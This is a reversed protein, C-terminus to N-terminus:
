EIGGKRAKDQEQPTPPVFGSVSDEDARSRRYFDATRINGVLDVGELLLTHGNNDFRRVKCRPLAKQLRSAEDRSPLLGDKGSFFPSRSHPGTLPPLVNQLLLGGPCHGQCPLASPTLRSVSEEIM